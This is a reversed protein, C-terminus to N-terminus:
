DNGKKPEDVESVRVLRGAKVHEQVDATLRLDAVERGGLVSGDALTVPGDTTNYVKAM